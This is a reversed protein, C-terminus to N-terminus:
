GASASFSGGIKPPRPNVCIVPISFNNAIIYQEHAGMMYDTLGIDKTTMVFIADANIKKSYDIIEKTYDKEGDAEIMEYEVGKVKFNKSLFLINSEIGKKFNSDTHKAMFVHIKSGFYRSFFSVWNTSEKNEKRYNVPFVIDKYPNEKTPKDQVVIFPVKTNAIVKLAWSGFFKQSGKIGHTGMFVMKAGLEEATEGITNFINGTKVLAEPRPNQTAYNDAIVGHLRQEVAKIDSEKKTINLLTIGCRLTKAAAFAHELAYESKETFDWTVLIVNKDEM